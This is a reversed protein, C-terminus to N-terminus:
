RVRRADIWQIGGQATITIFRDVVQDGNELADPAIRPARAGLVDQLKRELCQSIGVLVDYLIVQLVPWISM